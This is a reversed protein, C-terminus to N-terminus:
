SRRGVLYDLSLRNGGFVMIGLAMAAWTLHLPWGSPITLQIIATMVLLAFAAFRTGFGLVLLIPLLVEAIAAGYAALVPMPYAIIKGFIHLKFEESFLVLTNESIQGFGDWKTLGSRFFPVALAARLAISVLWSPTLQIIVRELTNILSNLSM